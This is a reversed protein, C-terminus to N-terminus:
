GSLDCGGLPFKPSVPAVGWAALASHDAAARVWVQPAVAPDPEDTMAADVLGEQFRARAVWFPQLASALRAEAPHHPNAMVVAPSRNSASRRRLRCSVGVWSGCRFEACCVSVPGAGVSEMAM